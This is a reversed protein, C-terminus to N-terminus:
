TKGEYNSLIMNHPRLNTDFKGIKGLLFHPMFNVSTGGDVLIKNVTTNEIKARIFLPKMHSKMGKHPSEFFANHEEICGNDMVFYCMSKHKAMEEEECDEPEAVETVCDYEKPLVHVINRLVDFDDKLGYDFNDTVLEDEKSLVEEKAKGKSQSTKPSFLQRGVLKKVQNIM